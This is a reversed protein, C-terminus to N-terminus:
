CAQFYVSYSGWPKNADHKVLTPLSELLEVPHQHLHPELSFKIESSFNNNYYNENGDAFKNYEWSLWPM